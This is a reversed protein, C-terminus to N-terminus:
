PSNCLRMRMTEWVLLTCGEEKCELLAIHVMASHRACEMTDHQSHPTSPVVCLHFPSAEACTYSSLWASTSLPCCRILHYLSIGNLHSYTFLIGRNPLRNFNLCTPLCTCYKDVVLTHQNSLDLRVCSASCAPGIFLRMVANGGKGGVGWVKDCGECLM